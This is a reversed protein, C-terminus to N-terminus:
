KFEWARVNDILAGDGDAAGVRLVLSPKKVRFDVAKAKLSEKGQIQVSVEEGRNELMLTYWQGNKFETSLNAHTKPKSSPDAKDNHELISYGKPTVIISYLHGRKKLEGTAPDFGVHIMKANDFQFDLQLIFDQVPMLKRFAGAHKESAIEGLRLAGNALAITGTNKVWGKPVESGDFKEELVVKGKSGLTPELDAAFNPCTLLSLVLLVSVSQKMKSIEVLPSPTAPLVFNL